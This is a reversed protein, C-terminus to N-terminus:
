SADTWRKLAVDWSVQDPSENYGNTTANTWCRIVAWYVLWKPLLWAISIQRKEVWSNISWHLLLLKSQLIKPPM